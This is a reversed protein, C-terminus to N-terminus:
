TYQQKHQHAHENILSQVGNLLWPQSGPARLRPLLRSLDGHAYARRDRRWVRTRATGRQHLDTGRSGM